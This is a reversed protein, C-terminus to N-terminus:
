RYCGTEGVPYKCSDDGPIFTAKQPVIGIKGRLRRWRISKSMQVMLFDVDKQHMM